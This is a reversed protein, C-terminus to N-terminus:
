APVELTRVADRWAPGDPEIWADVPGAGGAMALRLVNAGADVVYLGPATIPEDSSVPVWGSGDPLLAEVVIEGGTLGAVFVNVRQIDGQRGGYCRVPTSNSTGTAASFVKM